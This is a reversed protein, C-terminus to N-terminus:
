FTVSSQVELICHPRSDNNQVLIQGKVRMYFMSRQSVKKLNFVKELICLSASFSTWPYNVEPNNDWFVNRSTMPNYFQETLTYSFIFECSM